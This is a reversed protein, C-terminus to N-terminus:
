ALTNTNGFVHLAANPVVGPYPAGARREFAPPFRGVKSGRWGLDALRFRAPHPANAPSTVRDGVVSPQLANEVPTKSGATSLFTAEMKLETRLKGLDATAANCAVLPPLSLSHLAPPSEPQDEATPNAVFLEERGPFTVLIAQSHRRPALLIEPPTPCPMEAHFKAWTHKFEDDNAYKRIFTLWVARGDVVAIQFSWKIEVMLKLAGNAQRGISPHYGSYPPAGIYVYGGGLGLNSIAQISTVSHRRRDATGHLAHPSASLSPLGLIVATSLMCVVASVRPLRTFASPSTRPSWMMGPEGSSLKGPILHPLSM